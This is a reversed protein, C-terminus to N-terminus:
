SKKDLLSYIKIVLVAIMVALVLSVYMVYVYSLKLLMFSFILGYILTFIKRSLNIYNVIMDHVEEKSNEFLNKRMFSNFPDRILLFVYFGFSMVIAGCMNYGMFNGVLLLIFSLCLLIELLFITKNKLKNYIKLFGLNSILRSLRSIFIFISLIIAVKDLSLFEQLNLQIFLKSNKQGLVILAYFVGYLLIMMVINKGINVNTKEKDKEVETKVEYIFYTLFINIFCIILCIYMPVYPNVSFLFGSILSVVLTIFSYITSGKIQVKLYDNERKQYELNKILIVDDMNKFVFGITYCVEAILFGIYKTCFINLLVSLFLLVTGLRVSNVNGIKRVIKILGFQFLIGIGTGIADISNIQSPNLGKVATLFLTNIAIWFILDATLGHFLPYIKISRNIKQQESM